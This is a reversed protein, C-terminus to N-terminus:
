LIETETLGQQPSRRKTEVPCAGMRCKLFSFHQAWAWLSFCIFPSSLQALFRSQPLRAPSQCPPFLLQAPPQCPPFLSRLALIPPAHRKPTKLSICSREWTEATWIPTALEPDARARNEPQPGWRVRAEEEPEM